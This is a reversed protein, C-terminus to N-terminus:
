QIGQGLLGEKEGEEGLNMTAGTFILLPVRVQSWEVQTAPVGEESCHETGTLVM